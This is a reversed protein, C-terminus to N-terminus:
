ILGGQGSELEGESCQEGVAGVWRRALAEAAAKDEKNRGRGAVDLVGLLERLCSTSASLLGWDRLKLPTDAQLFLSSPPACCPGPAAVTVEPCLVCPVGAGSLDPHHAYVRNHRMSSLLTDSCLPLMAGHVGVWRGRGCRRCQPWCTGLSPPVGRWADWGVGEAKKLWGQEACEGEQVVWVRGQEGGTGTCGGEGGLLVRWFGVQGTWLTQVAALMDWTLTASICGFPSAAAPAAPAAPADATGEGAEAAAEADAAPAASGGAGAAAAPAAKQKLSEAEQRSVVLCFM